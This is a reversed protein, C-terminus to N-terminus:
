EIKKCIVFLFLFVESIGFPLIWWDTVCKEVIPSYSFIMLAIGCGFFLIFMIFFITFDNKKWYLNNNPLRVKLKQM